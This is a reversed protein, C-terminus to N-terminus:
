YNSTKLWQFVENSLEGSKAYSGTAENIDDYYSKPHKATFFGIVTNTYTVKGGSVDYYYDRVSGNNNFGTFGVGNFFNGIESKSIASKTDPFDVLVTLGNVNNTGSASIKSDLLGNTNINNESNKLASAKTFDSGHLKTRVVDAQNKIAEKKIKIHKQLTNKANNNTDASSTIKMDGFVNNAKYVEGTSVYDTEAANLKAYCIWGDKDRCLTYGDLSEVQQFYEDGSIKVQVKSGDPQALEHQQNNYPAASAGISLIGWMTVVVATTTLYKTIRIYCHM